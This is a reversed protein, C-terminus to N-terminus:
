TVAEEKTEPEEPPLDQGNVTVIPPPSAASDNQEELSVFVPIQPKIAHPHIRMKHRLRSQAEELSTRARTFGERAADRGQHEAAWLRDILRM